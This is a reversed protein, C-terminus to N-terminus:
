AMCALRECTAVFSALAGGALKGNVSKRELTDSNETKKKEKKRARKLFGGLTGVSSARKKTKEEQEKEREKDSLISVEVAESDTKQVKQRPLTTSKPEVQLSELKKLLVRRRREMVAPIQFRELAHLFVVADIILLYISLYLLHIRCSPSRSSSQLM